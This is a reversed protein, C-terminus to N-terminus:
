LDDHAEEETEEAQGTSHGAEKYLKSVIPNCIGEIDKLRDEYDQKDANPNADLWTIQEKVASTITEKEEDSLKKGLKEPDEVTNKMSHLYSDLSNKADIREKAVKDQEAFEEAEKLMKQIEEESLRGKENTIVIKESKGTGKDAASVAMIGNADIEFSVEIQPTGRPAPPIDKLDFKGLEHNDKVLPREGEYVSITM